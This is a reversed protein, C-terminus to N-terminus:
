SKIIVKIIQSPKKIENKAQRNDVDEKTFRYGKEVLKRKEYLNKARDVIKSDEMEGTKQIHIMNKKKWRLLIKKSMDEKHLKDERDKRQFKTINDKSNVYKKKIKNRFITFLFIPYSINVM